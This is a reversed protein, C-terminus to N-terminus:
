PALEKVREAFAEMVLPAVEPGCSNIEGYQSKERGYAYPPKEDWQRKPIIYGIEDNALGFLMWPGEGLLSAVTPELPADPFDAATEAPEQFKGYVLEPYLEGPISALRLQGMQLCAVETLVAFDVEQGPKPSADTVRFDGTWGVGKRRLVGVSRAARYAANHVPLAIRAQSIRLPVLEIPQGAALSKEALEAVARGYAASYAFDGEKLEKGQEDHFLHDPPAMLGGLAGTFYAVPVQHRAKLQEVTTAVFDATLLKNDPGMAEPHCNWQVLLGLLRGTDPSEFQLTRLVGDKAHPKRSDSVLTEDEATGYRVRAAKMQGAAARVSSAATEVVKKLYEPDVGRSLPNKGWLGITDPGEHNHTSSVLVYDIEPLAERIREVEPYQLGVLDVSVLAITTKGDGLVVCRAFLRDHVGTAERGWGYGAIWVPRGAGVEPTIDAEHFGVRLTPGEDAASAPRAPTLGAVLALGLWWAVGLRRVAGAFGALWDLVRPVGDACRVM